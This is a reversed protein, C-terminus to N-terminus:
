IPGERWKVTPEIDVVECLQKGLPCGSCSLFTPFIDGRFFAMQKIIFLVNLVGNTCILLDRHPELLQVKRSASPKYCRKHKGDFAFQWWGAVDREFGDSTPAFELASRDWTVRPFLTPRYMREALRIFPPSRLNLPPKSPIVWRAVWVWRM